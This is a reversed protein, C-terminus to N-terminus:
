ITLLKASDNDCFSFLYVKGLERTVTGSTNKEKGKQITRDLLCQFMKHSLKYETFKRKIIIIKGKSWFHLLINVRGYSAIISYVFM